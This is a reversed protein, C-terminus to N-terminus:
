ADPESLNAKRGHLETYIRPLAEAEAKKRIRSRSRSGETNKRTLGHSIKHKNKQRIETAISRSKRGAGEDVERIRLEM